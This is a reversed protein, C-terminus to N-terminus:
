NWEMPQRDALQESLPPALPKSTPVVLAQYEPNRGGTKFRQIRGHKSLTDLRTRVMGLRDEHVNGAVSNAHFRLAAYENLFDLIKVTLPDDGKPKHSRTAKEELVTVRGELHTVRDFLERIEPTPSSM